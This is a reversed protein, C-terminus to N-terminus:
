IRMTSFLIFCPYISSHVLHNNHPHHLPFIPYSFYTAFFRIPSTYPQLHTSKQEVPTGTRRRRKVREQVMGLNCCIVVTPVMLIQGIHM